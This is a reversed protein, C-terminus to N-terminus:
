LPASASDSLNLQHFIDEHLAVILAKADLSLTTFRDCCASAWSYGVYTPRGPLKTRDLM